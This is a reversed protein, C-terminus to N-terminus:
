QAIQGADATANASSSRKGDPDSAVAFRCVPPACTDLVSPVSLQKLRNVSQGLDGVGFAVIAGKAGAVHMIDMSSIAFSADGSM